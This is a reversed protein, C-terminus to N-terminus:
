KKIKKDQKSAWFTIIGIVIFIVIIISIIFM